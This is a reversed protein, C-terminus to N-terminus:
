RTEERALMARLQELAAHLRSKLTGLPIDLIEAAEAHTMGAHYCLLVVDHQSRELTAVAARLSDSEDSEPGPGDATSGQGHPRIPGREAPIRGESAALTHCQNVVIRYLWTKVESRGAFGRAFRIVRLWAEQVAEKALENRGHLLGCALGLLGREYRQALQGLAATEGAAFARLLDGDSRDM